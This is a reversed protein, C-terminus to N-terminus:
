LRALSAAETFISTRSEWPLSTATEVGVLTWAPSRVKVQSPVSRFPTLRALPPSYRRLIVGRSPEPAVTTEFTKWRPTTVATSCTLPCGTREMPPALATTETDPETM